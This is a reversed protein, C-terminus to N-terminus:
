EDVQTYLLSKIEKAVLNAILTMGANNPHLGDDVTYSTVNNYNIGSDKLDITHCGLIESVDKINENWEEVSIGKTNNSPWGPTKDRKVDELNTLCIVMSEPYAQKTKYLMLAYAERLTSVTGEEPINDPDYWNGIPVNSAWDNCSIYCIIIDPNYGKFSLDSIRRSSCGASANTTSSSDGTVRSGSWSCNTINNVSIGLLAATKYWWTNKVNKVDGRPYYYRYNEGDYGKSDSPLYGYFTSISDGIIAIRVQPTETGQSDDQTGTTEKQCSLIISLCICINSISLLVRM